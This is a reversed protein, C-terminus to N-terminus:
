FQVTACVVWIAQLNLMNRFYAKLIAAIHDGDTQILLDETISIRVHGDNSEGAVNDGINATWNSFVNLDYSYSPNTTDQLRMNKTLCLVICESWLYSSNITANVVYHRSGHPIVSLVKM